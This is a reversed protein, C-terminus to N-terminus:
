YSLSNYFQAYNQGANYVTFESIDDVALSEFDCVMNVFETDHEFLNDSVESLDGVDRAIVPTSVYLAELIARPVGETLSPHVLADFGKMYAPVQEPPVRGVFEVHDSFRQKLTDDNVEGVFVFKCNPRREIIKPLTRELTESGKLRSIRGVFGFITQDDCFQIPDTDRFRDPDVMPPLQVIQGPSVGRETLQDRGHDGLVICKDAQYLPVGGVVNYLFWNRYKSYGSHFEHLKFSDGSYRYIFKTDPHLQSVSGVLTGHIPPQTVQTLTAPSHERLYNKLARVESLRSDSDLPGYLQLHKGVNSRLENAKTTVLHLEFDGNLSKSLNILDRRVNFATVSGAFFAHTATM